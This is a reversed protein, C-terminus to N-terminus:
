VYNITTNKFLFITAMCLGCEKVWGFPPIGECLKRQGCSAIVVLLFDNLVVPILTKYNM